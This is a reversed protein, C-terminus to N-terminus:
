WRLGRPFGSGLNSASVGVVQSSSLPQPIQYRASGRLTRVPASCSFLTPLPSEVSDKVMKNLSLQPIRYQQRETHSARIPRSTPSTLTGESRWHVLCRVDVETTALASINRLASHCAGIYLKGQSERAAFKFRYPIIECVLIDTFCRIGFNVLM